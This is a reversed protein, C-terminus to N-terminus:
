RRIRFRGGQLGFSMPTSQMMALTGAHTMIPRYAPTEDIYDLVNATMNFTATSIDTKLNWYENMIKKLERVEGLHMMSDGSLEKGWNRTLYEMYRNRYTIAPTIQTNNYFADLCEKVTAPKPKNLRKNVTNHARAIFLFFDFRSNAWEPHKVTYNQFIM